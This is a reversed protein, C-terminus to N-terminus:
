ATFLNLDVTTALAVNVAEPHNNVASIVSVGKNALHSLINKMLDTAASDSISPITSETSVAALVTVKL